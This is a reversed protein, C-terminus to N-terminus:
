LLFIRSVETTNVATKALSGQLLKHTKAQCCKWTRQMEIANEAPLSKSCCCGMIETNSNSTSLLLTHYTRKSILSSAQPLSLTPQHQHAGPSKHTVVIFQFDHVSKLSSSISPLYLNDQYEHERQEQPNFTSTDLLNQYISLRSPHIIM